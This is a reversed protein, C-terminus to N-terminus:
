SQREAQRFDKLRVLTGAPTFEPVLKSIEHRVMDSDGAVCAAALAELGDRMRALSPSSLHAAVIGRIGIDFKPESDEFLFETLREGPRMGSYVIQIDREPELGALIIMRRALEDIRVPQGMNLVLVATQGGGDQPPEIRAATWLLDTAERKTMFYRVMAPDTVTLPGGSEIQARFRPIVSGATGVVNGFRVAVLRTKNQDRTVARPASSLAQVYLEAIRKTAGLISTPRTAKDTSILVFSEAGSRIAADAANVTGFCM